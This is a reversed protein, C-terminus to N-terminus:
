KGGIRSSCWEFYYKVLARNKAPGGVIVFLSEFRCSITSNRGKLAHTPQQTNTRCSVLTMDKCSVTGTAVAVRIAM